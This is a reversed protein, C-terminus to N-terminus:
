ASGAARAAEERQRIREALASMGPTSILRARSSPSSAPASEAAKLLVQKASARCTTGSGAAVTGESRYHPHLGKRIRSLAGRGRPGPEGDCNGGLRFCRKSTYAGCRFCFLLPACEEEQAFTTCLLHGRESEAGQMRRRATPLGNCGNMPRSEGVTKQCM